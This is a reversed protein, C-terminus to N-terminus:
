EFFQIMSDNFFFAGAEPLWCVLSLDPRASLARRKKGNHGPFSKAM